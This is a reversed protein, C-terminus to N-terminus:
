ALLGAFFAVSAALNILILAIIAINILAPAREVTGPLRTATIEAPIARFIEPINENDEEPIAVPAPIPKRESRDRRRPAKDEAPMAPTASASRTLPMNAVDTKFPGEAFIDDDLDVDGFPSAMPISAASTVPTALNRPPNSINLNTLWDDLVDSSPEVVAPARGSVSSTPISDEPAGWEVSTSIGSSAAGGGAPPYQKNLFDLGQRARENNPNISLVNELSTRQDDIPELVGSLWLWADENYQNLEVARLLLARAEDKRGAKLANVGERVMGDVNASAM